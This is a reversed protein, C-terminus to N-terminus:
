SSFGIKKTFLVTLGDVKIGVLALISTRQSPSRRPGGAALLRRRRMRMSRPGERDIIRQAATEKGRVHRAKKDEAGTAGKAGDVSAVGLANRVCGTVDRFAVTSLVAAVVPTGSRLYKM